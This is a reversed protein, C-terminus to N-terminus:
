SIKIQNTSIMGTCSCVSTQKLAYRMNTMNEGCIHLFNKVHLSIESKWVDTICLFRFNRWMVIKRWMDWIHSIHSLYSTDNSRTWFVSKFPFSVYYRVAYCSDVGKRESKLKCCSQYYKWFGGSTVNDFIASQSFTSWFPNENIFQKNYNLVGSWM